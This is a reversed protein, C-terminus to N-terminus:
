DSANRKGIYAVVIGVAVGLVVFVWWPASIGLAVFLAIVAFAWFGFWVTLVFALFMILGAVVALSVIVDMAEAGNRDWWSMRYTSNEPM